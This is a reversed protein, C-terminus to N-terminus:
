GGPLIASSLHPATLMKKKFADSMVKDKDSM